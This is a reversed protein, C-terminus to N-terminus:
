KLHNKYRSTSLSKLLLTIGPNDVAFINSNRQKLTQDLIVIEPATLSIYRQFYNHRPTLLDRLYLYRHSEEKVTFPGLYSTLPPEFDTSVIRFEKININEPDLLIEVISNTNDTTFVKQFIDNVLRMYTIKGNLVIKNNVLDILNEEFDEEIVTKRLKVKAEELFQILFDRKNNRKDQYVYESEDSLELIEFGYEDTYTTYSTGRTYLKEIFNPNLLKLNSKSVEVNYHRGIKWSNMVAGDVLTNFYLNQN